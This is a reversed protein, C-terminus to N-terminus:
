IQAQAKIGSFASVVLQYQMAYTCLMCSHAARKEVVKLCQVVKAQHWFASRQTPSRM